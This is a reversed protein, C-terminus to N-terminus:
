KSCSETHMGNNYILPSPPSLEAMVMFVKRIHKRNIETRRKGEKRLAM